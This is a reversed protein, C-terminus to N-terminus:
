TEVCDEPGDVGAGLFNHSRWQQIIIWKSEVGSLFFPEIVVCGDYTGMEAKQDHIRMEKLVVDGEHTNETELALKTNIELSPLLGGRNYKWKWKFITRTNM